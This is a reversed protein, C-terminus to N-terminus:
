NNLRRVIEARTVSLMTQKMQWRPDSILSSQANSANNEHAQVLEMTTMDSVLGAYYQETGTQTTTTM